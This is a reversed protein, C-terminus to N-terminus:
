STGTRRIELELGLERLVRFLREVQSAVAGRELDSLYTRHLDCAEALEAQNLGARRRHDAIAAGLVAPTRARWVPAGKDSTTM